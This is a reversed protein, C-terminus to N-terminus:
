CDRSGGDAARDPRNRWSIAVMVVPLLIGTLVVLGTMIPLIHAEDDSLQSLTVGGIVFIFFAGILQDEGM